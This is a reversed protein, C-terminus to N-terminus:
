VQPWFPWRARWQGLAPSTDIGVALGDSWLPPAQRRVVQQDCSLVTEGLRGTRTPRRSVWARRSEPLTTVKIRGSKAQPVGPCSMSTPQMWPCVSVYGVLWMVTCVGFPVKVTWAPTTGLRGM